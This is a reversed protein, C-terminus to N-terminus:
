KEGESKRLGFTVRRLWKDKLILLMLAYTGGGVCVLVLTNVLKSDALIYRYGSYVIVGMIGSVCLYKVFSGIFSHYNVYRRGILLFMISKGLESVVTAVAAGYSQYLPILLLNLICNIVIGCINISLLIKERKTAVLLQTGIVNSVGMFILMPAFIKMLYIVKGFGMGFFWPVLSESIVFCGVSLPLAILCVVDMAKNVYGKLEEENNQSYLAAIRPMLVAGISAVVSISMTIIKQSQEYVGVEAMSQSMTGLMTKDIVTYITNVITPLLLIFSPKIHQLLSWDRPFSYRVYHSTTGLLWINGVLNALMICLAYLILDERDKVFIFVALVGGIKIFFNRKVIDKFEELGAFLWSVDFIAAVIQVGCALFVFFYRGIMASIVVYLITSTALMLVQISLLESYLKNLQLKNERVAAIERKAYTPIGLLAVVAFYTSISQCYSYIGIGEAGIIRSIYPTTILPVIIILIDYALNYIYNSAVSNKMSDKRDMLRQLFIVKIDLCIEAM